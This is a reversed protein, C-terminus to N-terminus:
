KFIVKRSTGDAYRVINIGRRPQQLRRGDPGYYAVPVNHGANTIGSIHTNDPDDIGDIACYSPTTPGYANSRTTTFDFSLGIVEGLATLDVWKWDKLQQGDRALYVDVATTTSDAHTGTITVRLYDAATFGQDGTYNGQKDTSLGDGNAIASATYATNTIWLGSVPRPKGDATTIPLAYPYAVCFVNSGKAGHGTVNNFQDPTTTEKNFTTATRNSLAYGSWSAWVPTYDCQFRWGGSTFYNRYAPFGWNDYTDTTLTDGRWYGDAKLLSAQDEFTTQACATGSLLVALILTSIQKM